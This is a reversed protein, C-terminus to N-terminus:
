DSAKKIALYSSIKNNSLQKSIFYAFCSGTM